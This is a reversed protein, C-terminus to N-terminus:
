SIWCSNIGPRMKMATFPSTRNAQLTPAKLEEHLKTSSPKPDSTRPTCVAVGSGFSLLGVKELSALHQKSALRTTLDILLLEFDQWLSNITKAQSAPGAAKFILLGPALPRASGARGLRSERRRERERERDRERDRERERERDRERERERVRVREFLYHLITLLRKPLDIFILLALVEIETHSQAPLLIHHWPM